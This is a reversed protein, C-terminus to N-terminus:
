TIRGRFETFITRLKGKVSDFTMAYVMLDANHVRKINQKKFKVYRQVAYRAEDNAGPYFANGMQFMGVSMVVILSLAAPGLQSNAACIFFNIISGLSTYTIASVLELSAFRTSFELPPILIATNIKLFDRDISHPFLDQHKSLIGAAVGQYRQYILQCYIRVLFLVIPMYWWWLGEVLNILGVVGFLLACVVLSFVLSIM